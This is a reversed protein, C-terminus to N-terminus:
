TPKRGTLVLYMPKAFRGAVCPVVEVGTCDSDAAFKLQEVPRSGKPQILRKVFGKAGLKEVFRVLLRQAVYLPYNVNYQVYLSCDSFIEGALALFEAATFERVHFPNRGGWRYVPHNPTSCVLLGGPRLIRRCEVLFQRPDNLHELTEFSVVVDAVSDALCLRQADCAVFSCPQYNGAAFQLSPLSVDVGICSRAGATLLYYSGIGTGSAVDVVRQARVYKGAFLYRAEHERFVALPTLGPVIREGSFVLNSM